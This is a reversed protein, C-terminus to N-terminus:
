AIGRVVGSRPREKTGQNLVQRRLMRAGVACVALDVKRPSERHGKWLSVGYRNPYRRANRLHQRLAPHGDHTVQRETRRGERVADASEELESVFREAAQTFLRTREPSAMDWMVSHRDPGSAVAWTRLRSSFDRHWGDIVADWYGTSDDDKAHSPDAWFAVVNHDALVQRVRQDVDMRNVTWGVGQAGSPRQWVGMTVVHGDTLRCAVLGTADDSKSGDFFLVLEDTLLLDLGDIEAAAVLDIDKPDLWADEAATIQNFWFRRSRSPPNRTDLVSQVIREPNLWVSDGRVGTVVDTVTARVRVAHDDESEGPEAAVALPAEPPAELSDYLIGTTLSQGGAQAEYAERDHQAVSDESPEYANTIRLSRAAGGASKAANREIVAAMEHGDNNSRWHQTENPFVATARAGELTTPSSTVAEILRQDGMAHITEKGIQVRYHAQAEPTILSPMLRMTNKTQKLSVAPLQVWAEPCDTAVPEDGDMYAVRCPGLAEVYSLCAAMPDKGWGKLRQLVGDVFLWGGSPDVAYWWLVLRAQESTFRWPQDKGHQLETGCWGLVDWGISADPLLWLGDRNTQWTPGIRVPEYKTGKWPFEAPQALLDRYYGVVDEHSEGTEVEVQRKRAM